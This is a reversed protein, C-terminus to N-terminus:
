HFLGSTTEPGRSPLLPTANFAPAHWAAFVSDIWPRKAPPVFSFFNAKTVLRSRLKAVARSAIGHRQRLSAENLLAALYAYVRPMDLVVALQQGRGAICEARRPLAGLDSLVDALRSCINAETVPVFIFTENEHLLPGTWDFNEFASPPVVAETARLM